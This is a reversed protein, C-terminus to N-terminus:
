NRNLLKTQLYNHSPSVGVDRREANTELSGSRAAGFLPLGFVQAISFAESRHRSQWSLASYDPWFKLLFRHSVLRRSRAAISNQTGNLEARCGHTGAAGDEAAVAYASAVFPVCHISARASVSESNFARFSRTNTAYVCFILCSKTNLLTLSVSSSTCGITNSICSASISSLKLM